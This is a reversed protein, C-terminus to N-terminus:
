FHIAFFASFGLVTLSGGVGQRILIELFDNHIFPVRETTSFNGNLDADFGTGTFIPYGREAFTRIATATWEARAAVNTPSPLDDRNGTILEDPASSGVDALEPALEPLAKRVESPLEVPAPSEASGLQHNSREDDVLNAVESALANINANLIRYHNSFGTIGFRTPVVAILLVIATLTSISWLFKRIVTISEAGSHERPALIEFHSVIGYLLALIVIPRQYTIWCGTIFSLNAFVRLSIPVSSMRTVLSHLLILAGVSPRGALVATSGGYSPFHPGDLHLSFKLFSTVAFAVLPFVLFFVLVRSRASFTEAPRLKHWHPYAALVLFTLLPSAYRASGSFSSKTALATFGWCVAAVLFALQFFRRRVRPPADGCRFSQGLKVLCLIIVVLELLPLPVFPFGIRNIPYGVAILALALYDFTNEHQGGETAECASKLRMKVGNPLM